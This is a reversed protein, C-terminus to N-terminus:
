SRIQKIIQCIDLVSEQDIDQIIENLQANGSNDWIDLAVKILVQQGSSFGGIAALIKDSSMNLVPRHKNFMFTLIQQHNFLIKSIYELRKLDGEDANKWQFTM